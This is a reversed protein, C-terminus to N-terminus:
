GIEQEHIIKAYGQMEIAMKLFGTDGALARVAYHGNEDARYSGDASQCVVGGIQNLTDDLAKPNGVEVILEKM